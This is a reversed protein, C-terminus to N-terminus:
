VPIRHKENNSCYIKEKPYLTPDFILYKCAKGITTSRIPAIAIAEKVEAITYIFLCAARFDAACNDSM